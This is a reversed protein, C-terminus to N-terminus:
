EKEEFFTAAGTPRLPVVSWSVVARPWEPLWPPLRAAAEHSESSFVIFAQSSLTKGLAIHEGCQLNTASARTFLAASPYNKRAVEKLVPDPTVLLWITMKAALQARQRQM